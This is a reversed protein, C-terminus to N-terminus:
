VILDHIREACLAYSKDNMEIGTAICDLKDAAPFIPGSGAFFDVVADGPYVSRRLLDLYLDVPKGAAHTNDTVQPVRIIDHYMATVEKEGKIAYLVAEYVLRPGHSSDGYSGLNGKDWILPRPWVRWGAIEFVTFLTQWHRIDCFVYCHAQSKAVRFSEPALVNIIEKFYEESDDYDHKDGDFAEGKHMDRGYPPDTLIVDFSEDQLHKVEEFFDGHVLTHQVQGKINEEFHKKKEARQEWEKNQRIAKIAAKPDKAIAVLPDDLFDALLVAQSVGHIEDTRAKRGKGSRRALENATDTLNWNKDGYMEVRLKHLKAKAAADEQWTLDKRCLNEELELELGALAHQEFQFTYPVHGLPVQEGDHMYTLGCESLLNIAKIRTEGATLTLGEAEDRVVIANALNNRHISCALDEIVQEDFEKRIRDPEILIENLPATKM